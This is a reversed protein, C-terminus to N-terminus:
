LVEVEEKLLYTIKIVADHDKRVTNSPDYGRPASIIFMKPTIKVVEGKTLMSVTVSYVVIDGVKVENGLFDKAM